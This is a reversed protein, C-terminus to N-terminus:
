HPGPGDITLDDLTTATLATDLAQDHPLAALHTAIAEIRPDHGFSRRLIAALMQATGIAQGEAEGIARGRAEATAAIHRGAVTGELTIPMNAEQTIMEITVPDLHIGALVAATQALDHRHHPDSVTAIVALAARLLQGLRQDIM